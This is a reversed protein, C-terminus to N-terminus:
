AKVQVEPVNLKPFAGRIYSMIIDEAAPGPDFKRGPDTYDHGCITKITPYTEVLAQCANLIADREEYHFAAWHTWEKPALGSAHTAEVADERPWVKGYTTRLQGDKGMVLPGPNVIALGIARDNWGKAHSGQRDFPVYQRVELSRTKDSGDIAAHYFHGSAFLARRNMEIDHCVDFHIIIHTPTLHYNRDPAPFRKVGEFWHSLIKM